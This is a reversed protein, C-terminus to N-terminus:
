ENFNVKSPQFDAAPRGGQPNRAVAPLPPLILALTLLASILYFVKKM